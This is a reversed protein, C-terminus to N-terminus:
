GGTTINREPPPSFSEAMVRREVSGAHLSIQDLDRGPTRPVEVAATAATSPSVDRHTTRWHRDLDHKRSFTLNCASYPCRFRERKGHLDDMHRQLNNQNTFDRKCELCQFGRPPSTRSRRRKMRLRCRVCSVLSPFIKNVGSALGTLHNVNGDKPWQPTTIQDNDDSSPHGIPGNEQENWTSGEIETALSSDVDPPELPEIDSGKGSTAASDLWSQDVDGDFPKLLNTHVVKPKHQPSKQIRVVVDTLMKIILYPGDCKPQLKPSVGVRKATVKMM